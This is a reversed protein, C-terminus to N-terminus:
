LSRRVFRRPTLSPRRQTFAAREQRATILRSEAELWIADDRDTPRGSELWLVRACEAIEDHGPRSTSTPTIIFPSSRM